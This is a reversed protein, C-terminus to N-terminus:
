AQLTKWKQELWAAAGITGSNTRGVVQIGVPLGQVPAPLTVVPQGTANFPRTYRTIPERVETGAGILPAVIATAPLILADIGELAHMADERLKPWAAMAEDFDVALIELGRRIHGIVDAGYKEPCEAAWRRHYVAAEVLLITLSVSYLPERQVFDIEPLGDSVLRWARATPEDLDAVWGAPVALRPERGPEYPLTEGSMMSYARAAGAVDPALPGITDLSRSLPIVGATDISGLAPKFGIVGCFSAPIRISGGTDTGVAWDCMGAAVAVASGGSSGGAVRDLDHPNRVAGYHPNVSTVGYAFEHLNTKGVIVCGEGRLRRVVPADEAAPARPLIVAGATTVMGAVDVLDKVAVVTGSGEESSVSIFANLDARERIRERATALEM